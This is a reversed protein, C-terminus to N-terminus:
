GTVCPATRALGHFPSRSSEDSESNHACQSVTSMVIDLMFLWGNLFFAHLKSIPTLVVVRASIDSGFIKMRMQSISALLVSFLIQLNLNCISNM